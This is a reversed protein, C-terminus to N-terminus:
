SKFVYYDDDEYVLVGDNIARQKADDLDSDDGEMDFYGLNELENKLEDEGEAVSFDSIIAIPDFEIQEGIDDELQTIYDFLVDSAGYSLGQKQMKEQFMNKSVNIIM